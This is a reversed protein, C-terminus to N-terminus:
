VHWQAFSDSRHLQCGQVVLGNLLYWDVTTESEPWNENKSAQIDLNGLPNVTPDPKQVPDIDGVFFLAFSAFL